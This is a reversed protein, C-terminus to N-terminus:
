NYPMPPAIESKNAKRNEEEAAEREQKEKSTEKGIHQNFLRERNTRLDIIDRRMKRLDKDRKSVEDLIEEHVDQLGNMQRAFLIKIDDDSNDVQLIISKLISIKNQLPMYSLAIGSKLYLALAAAYCYYQRAFDMSREAERELRHAEAFDFVSQTNMESLEVQEKLKTELRGMRQLTKVNEIANFVQWGVLATVMVGLASIILGSSNNPNFDFECYCAYGLWGFLIAILVFLIKIATKM